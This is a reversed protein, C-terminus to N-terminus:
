GRRFSAARSRLSGDGGGRELNDAAEQIRLILGRLFHLAVQPDHQVRDLLSARTVPLLRTERIATVTASRLEDEFLAMEGFFDDQERIAIVTERGTDADQHVVQVAGSQIIYMRDGAQGQRFIVEGKHYVSGFLDEGSQM